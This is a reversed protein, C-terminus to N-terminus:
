WPGRELDAERALEPLRDPDGLVAAVLLRREWAGAAWALGRALGDADAAHVVGDLVRWRIAVPGEVGSVVLRDHHRYTPPVDELVARAAAPVTCEQGADTVEAPVEESALALDLVDALDAADTAPVVLPELPGLLPLLDPADLVVVDAAPAVRDVSVRVREPPTVQAADTEALAGYLARLQSRGVARGPDALRDLLEDAGSVSELLSAVSWRVGLARLLEGDYGPPCDDWLGALLPDGDPDRLDVPRRGALVAHGRLWWGAYPTVDAAGGVPLLVRQPRVIAERLPPVSLLALAQPWADPRVLELDRIAVFDPLLPPVGGTAEAATALEAGVSEIWRDEADLDHDSGDVDLPVDTDTVLLFTRLVGVAELVQAGWRAALAADVVGTEAPELVARLPADPLVLEAAPAPEGREDPLALEGLWALEGPMIGAAAVLGLVADALGGSEALELSSEVAARVVPDDLVTRPTADQAGLRLLLPHVADPHVVRLGLGGAASAVTAPLGSFTGRPGRVLRGDALPVPLAGLADRGGAGAAVGDADLAAYLGRWWAPERRLEALSDVVDALEIRRVGVSELARGRAPGGEAVLGPLVPGLVALLAPGAGAVTVADRPRLRGQQTAEGGRSPRDPAAIPRLLPTDSLVRTIARRLQGDLAGVPVPGPVLAVPDPVRLALGVYAQAAHAVLADTLAGPAVHRRTPDLPFSAVLLAPLDLPEDSPTPAHLVRSVRGDRTGRALDATADPGDARPLAWLVSWVPRIREEVPRDALLAPQVPGTASEVLWRTETGGAAGTADGAADSFGSADGADDPDDRILVERGTRAATLRRRVGEPGDVEVVVEVLAPLALLLTADVARLLRRALEGAAADRLPLVVATDYGLEGLLGGLEPGAGAAGSDGPFPLRLVPVQGGRRALEDALSPLAACASLTDTRSWRVAGTRSVVAPEDTVLLVAAFGVGFRGVAARPADRKASARLTSLAAVGARDLPAGTNAAVVTAGDLRLLLRGPVGARAAADAANQALEVVLRDRHGGLALDEESNADERFRAPSASWADLVRRRLAATGFPDADAM